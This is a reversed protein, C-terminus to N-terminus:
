PEHNSSRLYRIFGLILRKVTVAQQYIGDFQQKDLYGQDLAVYLHSQVESASRLAYGLFKVFEPNSQSDFGEAINAMISNSSGQIQDKLGYDKGFAGQKSVKYVVNTLKRAEQWAEIDEFKTLKM